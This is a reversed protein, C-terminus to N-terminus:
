SVVLVEDDSCDEDDIVPSLSITINTLVRPGTMEVSAEAALELTPSTIAITAVGDPMEATVSFTRFPTVVQQVRERLFPGLDDLTGFRDLEEETVVEDLLTALLEEGGGEHLATLVTLVQLYSDASVRLSVQPRTGDPNTPVEIRAPVPHSLTIEAKEDGAPHTALYARDLTKMAGM